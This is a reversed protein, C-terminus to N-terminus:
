ERHRHNTTLFQLQNENLLISKFSSFIINRENINIAKVKNKKEEERNRSKEEEEENEKSNM